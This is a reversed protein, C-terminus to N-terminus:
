YKPGLSVGYNEITEKFAENFANAKSYLNDVESFTYSTKKSVAGLVSKLVYSPILITRSDNQIIFDSHGVANRLDFDLFSDWLDIIAFERGPSRLREHRKKIDDFCARASLLDDYLNGSTGEGGIEGFLNGVVKYIYRVEICQVYGHLKLMTIIHPVRCIDRSELYRIYASLNTPNHLSRPLLYFDLKTLTTEGVTVQPIDISHRLCSLIDAEDKVHSVAQFLESLHLRCSEKFNDTFM